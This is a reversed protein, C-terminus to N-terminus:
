DQRKRRVYAVEFGWPKGIRALAEFLEGVESNEIAQLQELTVHIKEAFYEQSWGLREKIFRVSGPLTMEGEDVRRHIENRHARNEERTKTM